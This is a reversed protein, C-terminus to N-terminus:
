RKGGNNNINTHIKMKLLISTSENQLENNDEIFTLLINFCNRLEILNDTTHFIIDFTYNDIHSKYKERIYKKCNELHKFVNKKKFPHYEIESDDFEFFLITIKRSSDSMMHNIKNEIKCKEMQESSYISRVFDEYKDGLDLEISELINTKEDVDHIIEKNLFNACNWIIGISLM